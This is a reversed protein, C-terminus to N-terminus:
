RWVDGQTVEAGQGEQGARRERELLEEFARREADRESADVSEYDRVSSARTRDAFPNPPTALADPTADARPNPSAGANADAADAGGGMRIRDWTSMGSSGAAPGGSASAVAQTAGSVALLPLCM